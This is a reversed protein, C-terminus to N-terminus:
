AISGGSPALFVAYEQDAAALWTFADGGRRGGVV